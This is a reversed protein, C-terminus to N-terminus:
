VQPVPFLHRQKQILMQPIDFGGRLKNQFDFLSDKYAIETRRITWLNQKASNGGPVVSVAIKYGANMAMQKHESNFRGYPYAFSNIQYGLLNELYNKSGKIENWAQQRSIKDLKPHTLTHAGFDIGKERMMKIQSMDLFEPDNDIKLATLFITAQYGFSRLIPWAYDFNDRFGDDFTIVVQKSKKIKGQEIQCQAEALSIVDWKHNSLWRMQNYFKQPQTSIHLDELDRDPNVRHYMLVRIENGPVKLLTGIAGFLSRTNM